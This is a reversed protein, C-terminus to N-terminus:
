PQSSCLLSSAVSHQTHHTLMAVKKQLINYVWQLRAQPIAEIYPLTIDRYEDPSESVQAAARCAQACGLVDHKCISNLIFPFCVM